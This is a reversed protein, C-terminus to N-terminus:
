APAWLQEAPMTAKRSQRYASWMLSLECLAIMLNACKRGSPWDSNRVSNPPFGVDALVCSIALKVWLSM